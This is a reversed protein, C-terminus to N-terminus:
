LKIMEMFDGLIFQFNPDRQESKSLDDPFTQWANNDEEGREVCIIVTEQELPTGLVLTGLM